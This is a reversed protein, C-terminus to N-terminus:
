CGYDPSLLNENVDFNAKRLQILVVTLKTVLEFYKCFVEYSSWKKLLDNVFETAESLCLSFIM